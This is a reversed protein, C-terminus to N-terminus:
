VSGGVAAPGVTTLLPPLSGVRVEIVDGEDLYRGDEDGTGAPSGTLIVDGPHLVAYRSVIAVLEAVSRVMTSTRDHQRVEGNVRTILELDDPDDLADVAMLAPGVPGFGPFSKALAPSGTRRMVDRATMDNAPGVLGVYSWADREAIQHGGRGIVVALEGEFDLQDVDPPVSVVGGSVAGTRASRLFVTPEGSPDRGSSRARSWYNLGIGWHASAGDLPATARVEELSMERRTAAEDLASRWTSGQDRLLAAVSEYPLDVLEGRSSQDPDTRWRVLGSATAMLMM